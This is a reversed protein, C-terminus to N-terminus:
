EGVRSPAPKLHHRHHGHLLRRREAGLVDAGLLELQQAGHRGERALLRADGVLRGVRLRKRHGHEIHVVRPPVAHGEHELRARVAARTAFPSSIWGIEAEDGDSRREMGMIDGSWRWLIEAEDGDSRRTM